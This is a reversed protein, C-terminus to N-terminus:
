RGGGGIIPPGGGGGIPGIGPIFGGTSTTTTTATPLLVVEGEQLGETIEITQGSSLGTRVQRVERKGNALVQVTPGGGSRSVARSPVALVNERQQTVVRVTATMGATPQQGTATSPSDVAVKVPYTPVGQQVTAQAGIETVKGTFTAGTLASFTIIASQGVKLSGIATEGVTLDVSLGDPDLVSVITVNSSVQDGAKAGISAVIGDFPARITGADLDKQAQEVQARQLEIDAQDAGARVQALKAQASAVVAEASRM